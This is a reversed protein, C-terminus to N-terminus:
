CKGMFSLPELPINHVILCYGFSNESINKANFLDTVETEQLTGFSISYLLGSFIPGALGFGM